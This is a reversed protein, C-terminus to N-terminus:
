NSKSGSCDQTITYCGGAEAPVNWSYHIVTSSQGAMAGVEQVLYEMVVIGGVTKM